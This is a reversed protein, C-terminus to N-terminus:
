VTMQSSLSIGKMTYFTMLVEVMVTRNEKNSNRLLFTNNKESDNTSMSSIMGPGDRM